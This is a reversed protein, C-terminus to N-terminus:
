RGPSDCPEAVQIVAVKTSEAAGSRERWRVFLEIMCMLARLHVCWMCMVFGSIFCRASPGHWPDVRTWM